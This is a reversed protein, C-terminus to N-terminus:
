NLVSWLAYAAGAVIAVVVFVVLAVRALLRFPTAPDRGTVLDDSM